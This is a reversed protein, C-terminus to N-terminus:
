PLHFNFSHDTHHPWQTRSWYAEDVNGTLDFIGEDSHDAVQWEVGTFGGNSMKIETEKLEIQNPEDLYGGSANYHMQQVQDDNQNESRFASTDAINYGLATSSTIHTFREIDATFMSGASIDPDILNQDDFGPQTIQDPVVFPSESAFSFLNPCSNLSTPGSVVEAAATTTPATLSSRESSSNSDSKTVAADADADATTAASTTSKKTKPCRKAKRIGGGVPVNRLVGGKTWYRRCAKCYYRPQSLNYNNYYCFKTNLSECRPCKLAQQHNNARLRRDIGTSFISIDQM